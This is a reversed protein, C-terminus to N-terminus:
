YQKESSIYIQFNFIVLMWYYYRGGFWPNDISGGKLKFFEFHYNVTNDLSDISKLPLRKTKIM